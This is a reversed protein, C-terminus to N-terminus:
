PKIVLGKLWLLWNTVCFCLLPSTVDRFFNLALRSFSEIKFRVITRKPINIPTVVHRRKIENNVLDM